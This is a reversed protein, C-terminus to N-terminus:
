SNFGAASKVRPFSRSPDAIAAGAKGIKRMATQEIMSRDYAVADLLHQSPVTPNRRAQKSEAREGKEGESAEKSSDAVMDAGVSIAASTIVAMAALAGVNKDDVLLGNLLEGPTGAVAKLGGGALGEQFTEGQIVAKGPEVTVSKVKNWLIALTFKTSKKAAEAAAEKGAAKIIEAAAEEGKADILKGVGVDIMGTVFESAFTVALTQRTAKPDDEFKATTKLVSGMAVAGAPAALGGSLLTASVMLFEASTDRTFKLAKIAKGIREDAKAINAMTQGQADHMKNHFATNNHATIDVMHALRTIQTQASFQASRYFDAFLPGSEADTQKRVSAWDVDLTHLNPGIWHFEDNVKANALTARSRVFSRIMRGVVEWDVLYTGDLSTFKKFPM